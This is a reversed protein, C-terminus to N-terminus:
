KLIRLMTNAGRQFEYEVEEMVVDCGLGRIHSIVIDLHEYRKGYLDVLPFIRVEKNTVRIMENIAELHFTVDLRDGYMFLFHASLLLDYEGDAFPLNPITATIYNDNCQTYDALFTQLATLRHEKLHPINEFFEWQYKTKTMHMNDIVHEIDLVGKRRIQEPSFRYAQDIATVNLGKKAAVAAFSCAGAPCDLIRKGILAEESLAFMKIYEEYSRGIFVIRELDLAISQEVQSM